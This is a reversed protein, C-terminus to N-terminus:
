SGMIKMCRVIEALEILCWRSFAYNGSIVVIVYMSEQIAKLLKRESIYEGRKLKEDDRFTLIGIRKLADYLHDTFGKRTDKGHFSLFVEHIRKPTSSSCSPSATPTIMSAMPSKGAQELLIALSKLIDFSGLPQHYPLSCYEAHFFSGPPHLKCFDCHVPYVLSIPEMSPIFLDSWHTRREKKINKGHM